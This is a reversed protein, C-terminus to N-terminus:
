IFVQLFYLFLVLLYGPSPCALCLFCCPYISGLTSQLVTVFTLPLLCTTSSGVMYPKAPCNLSQKKTKNKKGQTLHLAMCLLIIHNPINKLSREAAIQPPLPYSTKFHPLWLTLLWSVFCGTCIIQERAAATRWLNVCLVCFVKENEVVYM